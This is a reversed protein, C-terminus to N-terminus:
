KRLNNKTTLALNLLTHLLRKKPFVNFYWSPIEVFIDSSNNSGYFRLLGFENKRNLRLLSKNIHELLKFVKKNEVKIYKFKLDAVLMAMIYSEDDTNMVFVNNTAKLSWVFSYHFDYGWHPNDYYSFNTPYLIDKSIGWQKLKRKYSEEFAIIYM